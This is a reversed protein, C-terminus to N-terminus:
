NRLQIKACEVFLFQELLARTLHFRIEGVKLHTVDALGRISKRFLNGILM